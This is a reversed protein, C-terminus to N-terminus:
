NKLEIGIKYAQLEALPRNKSHNLCSSDDGGNEAILFM